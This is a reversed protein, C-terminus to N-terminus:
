FQVTGVRDVHSFLHDDLYRLKSSPQGMQSWIETTRNDSFVTSEVHTKLSRPRLPTISTMPRRSPASIQARPIPTKARRLFVRQLSPISPLVVVRGRELAQGGEHNKHNSGENHSFGERRFHVKNCVEGHLEREALATSATQQTTAELYAM